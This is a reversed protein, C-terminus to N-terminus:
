GPQTDGPDASQRPELAAIIRLMKDAIVGHLVALEGAPQKDLWDQNQFQQVQAILCELGHQVYLEVLAGINVGAEASVTPADIGAEVRWRDVNARHINFDRAVKTVGTGLQLAAIVQAKLDDPHPIGRAM